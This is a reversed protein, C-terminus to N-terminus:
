APLEKFTLLLDRYYEYQKRRANLEAPLGVSLDNVLTHFRDLDDVIRNQEDLSPVPIMLGTVQGKSLHTQDVGNDYKLLGRNRDLLFHLFKPNLQSPDKVTIRAVRQNIAYGDDRDVFFTRALARGNPLDSLVLAVDGVRGPTLVDELPVYRNAEGNRSIFRATVLPIEAGDLVLKEHAKGNAYFAVKDLRYHPVEKSFALFEARYHEYQCRRAQLEEELEAELEAELKTFKDLIRVIERQVELPPVPFKFKKFGSMDVSAFSSTTTNRQCWEDLVFCYYFIFKIDFRAAFDEKISLSTFRQNSLHPVAILAHEGITASTAVLISNAPFLRGGKVASENIYQLSEDLLRGNERIDEMRFWPVTGDAWATPDSKSPTYGGKISFIERLEYFEVGDPCLEQILKEIRNM